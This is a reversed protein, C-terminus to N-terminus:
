NKRIRHRSIHIGNSGNPNNGYSFEGDSFRTYKAKYRKFVDDPQEKGNVTMGKASLTVNYLSNEDKVIGDKVLDSIMMQMQRQDEKANEQDIKAQAQDKLAQEQDLKAQAQDKGAQEQDRKAQEQDKAAAERDRKAQMDDKSAQEADRKAQIQDRGAQEQDRKAQQQDKMAQEQDKKAQVQDRAAQEQDKKAQIKDLRIQEKIEAIAGSYKSWQDVPIKEGEVEFETMKGSVLEMRYQTGKWNTQITEHNGNVTSYNNYRTSTSATRKTKVQATVSATIALAAIILGSKLFTTKM